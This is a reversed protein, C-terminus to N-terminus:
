LPLLAPGRTIVDYVIKVVRTTERVYKCRHINFNLSLHLHLSSHVNM